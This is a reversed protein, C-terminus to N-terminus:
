GKIERLQGWDIQCLGLTGAVPGNGHTEADITLRAVKVLWEVIQDMTLDTDSYLDLNVPAVFRRVAKHRHQALLIGQIARGATNVCIYLRGEAEEDTWEKGTWFRQQPDAIQFRPHDTTGTAIISLILDPM